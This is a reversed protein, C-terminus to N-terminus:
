NFVFRIVEQNNDFTTKINRSRLKYPLKQNLKEVKAKLLTIQKEDRLHKPLRRLERLSLESNQAKVKKKRLDVNKRYRKDRQSIIVPCGTLECIGQVM